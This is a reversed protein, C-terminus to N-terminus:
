DIREAEQGDVAQVVREAGPRAIRRARLEGVVVEGAIIRGAQQVALDLFAAAIRAPLLKRQQHGSLAPHDLEAVEREVGRVDVLGAGEIRAQEAPAEVVRRGARGVGMHRLPGRREAEGLALVLGEGVEIEADVVYLRGAGPHDFQAAAGGHRGFARGAQGRDDAVVLADAEAQPLGRWAVSGKAPRGAASDAPWTRS